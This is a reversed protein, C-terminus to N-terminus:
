DTALLRWWARRLPGCGADDIIRGAISHQHITAPDADFMLHGTVTRSIRCLAAKYAAVAEPKQQVYGTRDGVPLALLRDIEALTRLLEDRLAADGATNWHSGDNAEYVTIPRM